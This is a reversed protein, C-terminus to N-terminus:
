DSNKLFYDVMIPGKPGQEIVKMQNPSNRLDFIKCQDIKTAYPIGKCDTVQLATAILDLKPYYFKGNDGLDTMISCGINGFMQFTSEACLVFLRSVKLQILISIASRILLVATGRGSVALSTWLGCLEAAEMLKVEKVRSYIKEDIYGVAEEIPLDQDDGKIDIRAGGIIKNTQISKAM